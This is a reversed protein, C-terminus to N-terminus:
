EFWKYREIFLAYQVCNFLDLFYTAEVAKVLQHLSVALDNLKVHKEKEVEM